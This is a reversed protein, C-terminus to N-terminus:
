EPFFPAIPLIRHAFCSCRHPLIWGRVRTSATMCTHLCASWCVNYSLFQHKRGTGSCLVLWINMWEGSVSIWKNFFVQVKGEAVTCTICLTFMVTKRWPCYYHICSAVSCSSCEWTCCCPGDCTGCVGAPYRCLWLASCQGSCCVPCESTSMMCRRSPCPRRPTSRWPTAYGPSPTCRSPVAPRCPCSIVASVVLLAWWCM